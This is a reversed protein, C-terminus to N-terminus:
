NRMNGRITFWENKEDYEPDGFKLDGLKKFAKSSLDNGEEDDGKSSNRLSKFVSEFLKSDIPDQDTSFVENVLRDLIAISVAIKQERTEDAFKRRQIQDFLSQHIQITMDSPSTSLPAPLHIPVALHGLRSYTAGVKLETETSSINSIGLVKSLPRFRTDIFHRAKDLKKDLEGDFEEEVRRALKESAIAEAQSKQAGARKWAIREVLRSFARSGVKDISCITTNTNASATAAGSLLGKDSFSLQKQAVFRSAGVTKVQVPKQYGISDTTAEGELYLSMAACGFAHRLDVRTTATTKTTAHIDTGLICDRTRVPERKGLGSAASRVFEDIARESLSILVNPQRTLEEIASVFRGASASHNAEGIAKLRAVNQGLAERYEMDRHASAYDYLSVELEHLFSYYDKDKCQELLVYLDISNALDKYFTISNLNAKRNRAIEKILETLGNRYSKILEIQEKTLGNPDLITGFVSQLEKTEDVKFQAVLNVNRHLESQARTYATHPDLLRGPKLEQHLVVLAPRIRNIDDGLANWNMDSQNPSIAPEVIAPMESELVTPTDLVLVGPIQGVTQGIGVSYTACLVVLVFRLM